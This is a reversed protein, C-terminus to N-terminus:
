QYKYWNSIVKKHWTTNMDRVTIGSIFLWFTGIAKEPTTIIYVGKVHVSQLQQSYQYSM